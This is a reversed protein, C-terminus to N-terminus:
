YISKNQRKRIRSLSPAQVGIFAAMLYQPIRQSIEFYDKLFIQYRMEPSHMNSSILQNVVIGFRHELICRGFRDGYKFETYLRQIGDYDAKLFESDELCKISHISPSKQLFTHYESVFEGEKSFDTISMEDNKNVYYCVLGKNLFAVNKSQEGSKLFYEGKKLHYPKFIEMLMKEEEPLLPAFHRYTNILADYAM